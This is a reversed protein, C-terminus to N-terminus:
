RGDDISRCLFFGLFVKICDVDRIFSGMGRERYEM